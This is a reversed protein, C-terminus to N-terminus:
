LCLKMNMHCLIVIDTTMSFDSLQAIHCWILITTELLVLM